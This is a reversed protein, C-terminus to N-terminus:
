RFCDEYEKPVWAPILKGDKLKRAPNRQDKWFPAAASDIEAFSRRPVTIDFRRVGRSIRLRVPYPRDARIRAIDALSMMPVGDIADIEDGPLLGAEEAPSKPFVTAVWAPCHPSKPRKVITVGISYTTASPGADYDVGHKVPSWGTPTMFASALLVVVCTIVPRLMVNIRAAM